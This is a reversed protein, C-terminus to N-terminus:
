RTMLRGPAVVLNSNRRNTSTSVPPPGDSSITGQYYFIALGQQQVIRTPSYNILM